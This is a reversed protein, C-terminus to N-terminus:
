GDRDDNHQEFTVFEERELVGRAREELEEVFEGDDEDARPRSM